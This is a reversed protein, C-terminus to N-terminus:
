GHARGIEEMSDWYSAIFNRDDQWLVVGAHGELPAAPPNLDCSVDAFNPTDSSQGTPVFTYAVGLEFHQDPYLTVDQGTVSLDVIPLRAGDGFLAFAAALGIADPRVDDDLTVVIPRDVPWATQQDFPAVTVINWSTVVPECAAFLLILSAM